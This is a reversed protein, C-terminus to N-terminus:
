QQLKVSFERLNTLLPETIGYKELNTLDNEIIKALAERYPRILDPNKTYLFILCKLATGEEGEDGQFPMMKVLNDVFVQHPMPPNFTYIIRCISAVANDKCAQDSSQHEFIQKLRLLGQQLFPTM